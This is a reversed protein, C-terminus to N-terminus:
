VLLQALSALTPASKVELTLDKALIQWSDFNHVRMRNHITTKKVKLKELVL